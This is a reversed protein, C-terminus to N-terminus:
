VERWGDLIKQVQDGQVEFYNETGPMGVVTHKGVEDYSFDTIFDRNIYVTRRDTTTFQMFNAM